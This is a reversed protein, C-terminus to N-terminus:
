RAAADRAAADIKAAVAFDLESLGGADHTTLVFDVRNYKVTFDPHHQAAEAIDAVRNLLAMAARFDALKVTKFLADDRTDWGDLTPLLAAIRAASLKQPAPPKPDAM